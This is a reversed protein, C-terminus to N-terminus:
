IKKIKLLIENDKDIFTDVNYKNGDEDIIRFLLHRRGSKIIDITNLLFCFGSIGNLKTDEEFYHYLASDDEAWNKTIRNKSIFDEIEIISLNDNDDIYRFLKILNKDVISNKGEDYLDIHRYLIPRSLRLCEALDGISLGIKQIKERLLM